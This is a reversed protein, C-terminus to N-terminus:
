VQLLQNNIFTVAYNNNFFFKLNILDLYYYLMSLTMGCEIVVILLVLNAPVRSLKAIM